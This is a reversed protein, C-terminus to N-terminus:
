KLLIQTLWRLGRQKQKVFGRQIAAISHLPGNSTYATDVLECSTELEKLADLGVETPVDVQSCDLDCRQVSNDTKLWSSNSQKAKLAYACARSNYYNCHKALRPRIEARTICNLRSLGPGKFPLQSNLKERLNISCPFSFVKSTEKYLLVFYGM